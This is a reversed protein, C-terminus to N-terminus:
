KASLGYEQLLESNTGYLRVWYVGRLLPKPIVASLKAGTRATSGKWVANGAGDVIELPYDEETAAPADISLRLPKGAPATAFLDAGGRMSFLSVGVLPQPDPPTTRVMLLVLMALALVPAISTKRMVLRPLSSWTGGMELGEPRHQPDPQEPAAARIASIFRDIEALSDQCRRCILIHEEIQAAIADPLHDLALEELAEASPHSRLNQNFEM